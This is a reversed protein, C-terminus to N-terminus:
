DLETTVLGAVLMRLISKMWVIALTEVCRRRKTESDNGDGTARRGDGTARRGDGATRNGIGSERNGICHAGCGMVIGTM